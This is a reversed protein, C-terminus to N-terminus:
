AVLGQFLGFTQATLAAWTVPDTEMVRKLEAPRESFRARVVASLVGGLSDDPWTERELVEEERLAREVLTRGVDARLASRVAPGSPTADTDTVAAVVTSFRENILLQIQGMAPAELDDGITLQWPAGSQLGRGVFDIIALPFQSEDGQLRVKQKDRWLVSAERHAIPDTPPSHHGILFLITELELAPGLDVGALDVALDVLTTGSDLKLAHPPGAVGSLLSGSVRWGVVLGVSTSHDLGTDQVVGACDVEVQRRVSIPTGYDWEELWAPLVAPEDNVLMTWAGARVHDDDAPRYPYAEPM